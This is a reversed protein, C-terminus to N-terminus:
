AASGGLFLQAPVEFAGDASLRHPLAFHSIEVEHGQWMFHLGRGISLPLRRGPRALLDPQPKRGVIIDHSLDWYRGGELGTAIWCHMDNATTEGEPWFVGAVYAAPLGASRLAAVAYTHIDVCSGRTVGCSLVPVAGTGDTFRGKGHGYRFSSAAHAIVAREQGAEDLGAVLRSVHHALGPSARSLAHEPPHWLWSQDRKEDTRMWDYRASPASCTARAVVARQPGFNGPVLDLLELGEVTLESTLGFLDLPGPLLFLEGPSAKFEITASGPALDIM